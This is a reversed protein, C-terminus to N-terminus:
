AALAEIDVRHWTGSFSDKLDMRYNQSGLTVKYSDKGLNGEVSLPTLTTQELEARYSIPTSNAAGKKVILPMGNSAFGAFGIDSTTPRFMSGSETLASLGQALEVLVKAQTTLNIKDKESVQLKATAFKESPKQEVAFPVIASNDFGKFTFELFGKILTDGPQFQNFRLAYHETAVETPLNLLATIALKVRQVESETANRWNHLINGIPSGKLLSIGDLQTRQVSSQPTSTVAAAVDRQLEPRNHSPTENLVAESAPNRALGSHADKPTPITSVM